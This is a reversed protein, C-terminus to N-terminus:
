GTGVIEGKNKSEMKTHRVDIMDVLKEIEKITKIKKNSSLISDCYRYEMRTKPKKEKYKM